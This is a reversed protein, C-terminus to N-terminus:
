GLCVLEPFLPLVVPYGIMDRDATLGDRFAWRPAAIVDDCNLALCTLILANTVPWLGSKKKPYFLDM